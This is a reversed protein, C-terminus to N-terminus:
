WVRSQSHKNYREAFRAIDVLTRMAKGPLSSILHCEGLMPMCRDFSIVEGPLAIKFNPCFDGLLSVMGPISAAQAVLPDNLIVM